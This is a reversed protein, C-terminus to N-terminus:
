KSSGITTTTKAVESVLQESTADTSVATTAKEQEMKAKVKEAYNNNRDGMLKVSAFGIGAIIMGLVLIPVVVNLISSGKKGTEQNVQNSM